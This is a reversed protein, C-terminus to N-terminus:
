TVSKIAAKIPHIEGSPNGDTSPYYAAHDRHALCLEGVTIDCPVTPAPHSSTGGGVRVATPPLVAQERAFRLLRLYLTEGALYIIKSAASALLLVPFVPCQLTETSPWVM